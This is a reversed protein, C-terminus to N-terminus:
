IEMFNNVKDILKKRENQAFSYMHNKNHEIKPLLKKYLSSTNEKSLDIIVKQIKHALTRFDNDLTYEFDDEFVEFGRSLLLKSFESNEKFHIFPRMGIIPKFSKESIFWDNSVTESIINLFCKNWVSLPGLTRTDIQISENSAKLEESNLPLNNEESDWRDINKNSQDWLTVIGNHNSLINYLYERPPSIKRQYCLFDYEFNDPILDSDNYKKFNENCHVGWFIFDRPDILLIRENNHLFDPYNTPDIGGFFVVKNKSSKDLWQQYKEVANEYHRWAASFILLNDKDFSKMISYEFNTVSWRMNFDHIYSTDIPM